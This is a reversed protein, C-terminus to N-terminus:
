LSIFNHGHLISFLNSKCQQLLLFLISPFISASCSCFSSSIQHMKRMRSHITSQQKSVLLQHKTAVTVFILIAAIKNNHHTHQFTLFFRSCKKAKNRKNKTTIFTSLLSCFILQSNLKETELQFLTHLTQTKQQIKARVTYSDNICFYQQGTSIYGLPNFWM